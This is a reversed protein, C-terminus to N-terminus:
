EGEIFGLDIVQGGWDQKCHVAICNSGPRLAAKGEATLVAREYIDTYGKVAYALIGNIYVEADDDHRLWLDINKVKDAPIDINRRLWIEPTSWDTNRFANPTGRSAFGSQGEKWAGDKFDAKAWDPGPDDTTYRWAAPKTDAAPIVFVVAPPVGSLLRTIAARPARFVTGHRPHPPLRLESSRDTWVKLDKSTALGYAHISPSDWYLMWGEPTKLLSPGEVMSKSGIPTGPGIIPKPDLTWPKSFDAPATAVLLNKGGKDPAEENKYIVVWQQGEASEDLATMADIAQFPPEIYITAPTFSKGDATRTVYQKGGSSWVIMTNKQIPDYCIEPAWTNGPQQEAAPFPEVRVPESWHLLDKSEAYGFCSGKWSSTWVARFLGDQYVISPDRTLNQGEWPAPKMVPKDHNLPTFTLGDESAALFIGDEGNGRFFSFILMDGWTFCSGDKRDPRPGPHDATVAGHQGPTALLYRHTALSMLATDGRLMDIWQFTEATGPEGAKITVTRGEDVVSVYGDKAQLAIRGLGCDVVRLLAADGAAAPDDAKVRQMHGEKVVLVSGDALSSLTISLGIPIPRTLGRPRPEDVTVSDIDVYGGPAGTTSYNFISQRIGQFSKMNFTLDVEDGMRVFTAGDSSYSLTGLDTDLDTDCRLWLHDTKLPLTESKETAEDYRRLEFGRDTRAISLSVYPFKFPSIGALDGVEMRQCDFDVTFTSIPGVARQTLTNRAMPLGSAPLAHLRLFGPRETLSWKDAVPVHNWQWIPQLKTSSFDDSRQALPRPPQIPTIAPKVWTRPARTLNGPLGVMPWGNTWTVPCLCTPRGLGNHDMMIYSWWEGDPTDIIGGQHLTLGNGRNVDGRSPGIGLSENECIKIREWPGDLQDARACYLSGHPGPHTGVIMYKGNIKYLHSGEGYGLSRSFLVRTSGPVVDSLDPKLESLFIEFHGHVVWVKGDDDFLVGLDYLPTRITNHTWPGKPDTARYVQTGYGNVNSLIYFTGKHYNFAPAWIGNGYITKNEELRLAPGLDLTDFAYSLIEWNVLDKSHLIPLGPMSAFTTSTLYYDAGVRIMAPDPMDEYFLPNTFTGNGNDASWSSGIPLPISEASGSLSTFALALLLTGACSIIKIM